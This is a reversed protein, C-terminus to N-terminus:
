SYFSLDNVLENARDLHSLVVKIAKESNKLNIAETIARHESLVLQLRGEKKLSELRMKKMLLLINFIMYYLYKNGTAKYIVSHFDLNLDLVKEYNNKSVFYEMLDNIEDLREIDEKTIRDIALKIAVVELSKRMITFDKLDRDTIGIVTVGKNTSSIVLGSQELQKIAERIPTRSVNLEGAIDGEKLKDGRKYKGELIDFMIKQFVIESLSKKETFVEM